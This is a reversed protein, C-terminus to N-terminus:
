CTVDSVLFLLMNCKEKCVSIVVGQNVNSALKWLAAVLYIVSPDLDMSVERIVVDVCSVWRRLQCSGIGRTRRLSHFLRKRRSSVGLPGCISIKDAHSVAKRFLANLLSHRFILGWVEDKTVLYLM